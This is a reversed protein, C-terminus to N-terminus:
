DWLLFEKEFCKLGDIGDKKTVNIAEKLFAFFDNHESEYDMFSIEFTRESFHKCVADTEESNLGSQEFIDFLAIIVRLQTSEVNTLGDTIRSLLASANPGIARFASIKDCMLRSQMYDNFGAAWAGYEEDLDMGAPHSQFFEDVTRQIDDNKFGGNLLTKICLRVEGGIEQAARKKSNCGSDVDSFKYKSLLADTIKRSNFTDMYKFNFILFKKDM